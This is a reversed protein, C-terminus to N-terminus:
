RGKQAVTKNNKPKHNALMTICNVTVTYPKIYIYISLSINLCNDRGRQEPMSRVNKNKPNPNARPRRHQPRLATREVVPVLYLINWIFYIFPLM